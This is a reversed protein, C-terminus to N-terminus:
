KGYCELIGILLEITRTGHLFVETEIMNDQEKEEKTM